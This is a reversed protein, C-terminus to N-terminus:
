PLDVLTARFHDDDITSYVNGEEVLEEIADNIDAPSMLWPPSLAMGEVM